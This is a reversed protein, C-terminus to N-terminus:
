KLIVIQQTAAIWEVYAGVYEAVYRIPVYTRNDMITAGQGFGPIPQDIVLTLVKGDINITVTRTAEDWDVSGGLAEIIVRIPVLTRDGQIIPAVDNAFAKGDVVVNKNGIQLVIKTDYDMDETTVSVTVKGAPMTFSYQNDRTKTVPIVKGDEDTVIVEDVQKGSSPTVTITVTEGEIAHEESLTVKADDTDSIVVPYNYDGSFGGDSTSPTPTPTPPAPPTSPTIALAEATTENGSEDFYKGCECLYHAKMTETAAHFTKTGVNLKLAQGTTLVPSDLKDSDSIWGCVHKGAAVTGATLTGNGAVSDNVTLSGNENFVIDGNNTLTGTITLADNLTLTNNNTFDLLTAEGIIAVSVILREDDYTYAIGNASATYGNDTNIDNDLDNAFHLTAGNVTPATGFYSNEYGSRTNQIRRLEGNTITINDTGYGSVRIVGDDGSGIISGTCNNLVITGSINNLQIAGGGRGTLDLKSDTVSISGSSGSQLAYVGADVTLTIDNITLTGVSFIGTGLNKANLVTLKAEDDTDSVKKITLAGGSSVTEDVDNVTISNEGILCITLDGNADIAAKDGSDTVIKANNLTLIGNTKDYRVNYDNEDGNTLTGNGDTKWYGGSAVDTGAVTVENPGAALVATPVLSFLMAFILLGALLKRKMNM